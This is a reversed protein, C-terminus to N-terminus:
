YSEVVLHLAEAVIYPLDTINEKLKWCLNTDRNLPDIASYVIVNIDAKICENAIVEGTGNPMIWDTVVLDAEHILPLAEKINNAILSRITPLRHKMLRQIINTIKENDDVFLVTKM